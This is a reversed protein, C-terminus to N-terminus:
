VREEFKHPEHPEDSEGPKDPVPDYGGHTFPHCRGLRRLALWAGRRAGHKEIAEQAYKSCSPYFKCAGGLFPGLVVQYAQVLALLIWAGASRRGSVERSAATAASEGDAAFIGRHGSPQAPSYSHGM